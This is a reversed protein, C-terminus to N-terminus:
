KVEGSPPPLDLGTLMAYVNKGDEVGFEAERMCRICLHMKVGDGWDGVVVVVVDGRERM